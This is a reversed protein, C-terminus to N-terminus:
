QYVAADYFTCISHETDFIIQIIKLYTYFTFPLSASKILFVYQWGAIEGVEFM